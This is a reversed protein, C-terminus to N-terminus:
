PTGRVMHRMNCRCVSRDINRKWIPKRCIRRVYTGAMKQMNEQYTMYFDKIDQNSLQNLISEDYDVDPTLVSVMFNRIDDTPQMSTGYTADQEEISQTMSEQYQAIAKELKEETSSGKWPSKNDALKRTAMIGTDVNGNEDVYRNSTIAFGSFIIALVFVLGIAVVNIKKSFIRKLELKLM